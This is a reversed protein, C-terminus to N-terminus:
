FRKLLTQILKVYTDPLFFLRPKDALSVLQEKPVAEDIQRQLKETVEPYKAMLYVVWRLMNHVTDSGAGFLDNVIQRLGSFMLFEWNWKLFQKHAPKNNVELGSIILHFHNSFSQRVLSRTKIQYLGTNSSVETGSLTITKQNKRRKWTSMYWRRQNMRMATSSKSKNM